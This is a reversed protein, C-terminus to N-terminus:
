KSAFMGSLGGRLVVDSIIADYREVFKQCSNRILEFSGSCRYDYM